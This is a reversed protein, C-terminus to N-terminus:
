SRDSSRSPWMRQFVGDRKILAHQLAAGVHLAILAVLAWVGAYHVTKATNALVESKPLLTGIGFRDLMEIPFGGARVRIYGSLPMLVILTYLMGHTWASARRQWTPITEPLPPPPTVVRYAIRIIVLIGVIVGTNKHAIFLTNQVSRSWGEQVMLLGVAIMAFVLFAVAWHLLRATFTYKKQEVPM